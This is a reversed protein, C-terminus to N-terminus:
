KNLSELTHYYMNTAREKNIEYEKHRNDMTLRTTTPAKDLVKVNSYNVNIRIDSEDILMKNLFMTRINNLLQIKVKIRRQKEQKVSYNYKRVIVSHRKKMEVKDSLVSYLIEKVRSIKRNAVGLKKMIDRQPYGLYMLVFIQKQENDLFRDLGYELVLTKIDSEKDEILSDILQTKGDNTEQYISTYKISDRKKNGELGESASQKIYYLFQYSLMSIYKRYQINIDNNANYFLSILEGKKTTTVKDSEYKSLIEKNIQLFRIYCSNFTNMNLKDQITLHEDNNKIEKGRLGGEITAYENYKYDNYNINEKGKVGTYDTDLQMNYNYFNDVNTMNTYAYSKSIGYEKKIREIYVDKDNDKIYKVNALTNTNKHFVAKFYATQFATIQLVNDLTNVELQETHNKIYNTIFDFNLQEYGKNIKYVQQMDEFSLYKSLMDKIVKNIQLSVIKTNGNQLGELIRFDIDTKSITQKPAVEKVEKTKKVEKVQKTTNTTDITFYQGEKNKHKLVQLTSM